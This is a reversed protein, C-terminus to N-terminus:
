TRHIHNIAAFIVTCSLKNTANKFQFESLLLESRNIDSEQTTNYSITYSIM